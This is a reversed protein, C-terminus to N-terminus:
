EYRLAEVPDLRSAHWATPVTWLLSMLVAWTVVIGVEIWDLRAPLSELHYVTGPFIDFGVVKSIFDQIPKIYICFLVGFLVGTATGVAGITAGCMVFVRLITGQTAGMTRLIAIDRSKNKVLMLLGAVITISAIAVLMMLILRMVNQEVVLADSLGKSIARWDYIDVRPGLRDRLIVETAQIKDINNIRIEIKDVSDGRGFLIQAQEIPMYVLQADYEEEGTSFIGGIRFTKSRPTYGFPTSAPQPSVINIADGERVGLAAALRDGILITPDDVGAFEDLAHPTQFSNDVLPIARIDERSLGRVGVGSAAGNATALAQEEILPAAHTVGPTARVKALLPPIDEKPMERADIFVHGNVGLINSLLEHRFGNMVSMTIILVMVALMVGIISIITVMAVGGQSRKARMYRGALMRELLGFPASRTSM